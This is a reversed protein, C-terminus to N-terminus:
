MKSQSHVLKYATEYEQYDHKIFNETTEASYPLIFFATVVSTLIFTKV